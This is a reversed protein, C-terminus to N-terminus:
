KESKYNRSINPSQDSKTIKAMENNLDRGREKYRYKV